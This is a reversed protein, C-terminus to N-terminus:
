EKEVNFEYGCEPCMVEIYKKETGKQLNNGIDRNAKEIDYATVENNVQAPSLFPEFNKNEEKNEWVALGWENLESSEWGNALIDWDWEGFSVNDKIVFQEMQEDTLDDAKIIWIDKIGLELCAKYRMNGGLIGYESNVIIPRLKLMEPFERISNVLKKFKDERILRPNVPNSFVKNINIKQIM